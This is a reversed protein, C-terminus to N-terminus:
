NEEQDELPDEPGSFIKRTQDYADGVRDLFGRAELEADVAKEMASRSEEDGGVGSTLILMDLFARRDEPSYSTKGALRRIVRESYEPDAMLRGIIVEAEETPELTPLVTGKIIARGRAAVRNLVGLTLTILKDASTGADRIFSKTDAVKEPKAKDLSRSMRKSEALLGTIFDFTKPTDKFLERGVAYINSKGEEAASIAEIDAAKEGGPITKGTQMKNQLHKLYASQMGKQVDEPAEDFITGIRSVDGSDIFKEFNKYQEPLEDGYTDFFEKYKQKFIQTEAKDRQKELEKITKQFETIDDKSTKLRDILKNIRGAQEPNIRQMSAGFRELPGTFTSLDMEQLSQGANIRSQLQAAVEGFIMNTQLEPKVGAEPRRLLQDLHGAYAPSQVIERIIKDTEEEFNVVGIDPARGITGRYSKAFSELKGDKWVPAWDERYYRVFEKGEPINAAAENISSRLDILDSPDGSRSSVMRSIRRSLEPVLNEYLDRFDGSMDEPDVGASKLLNTPLSTLTEEHGSLDVDYGRPIQKVRENLDAKMQEYAKTIAQRTDDVSQNAAARVDISTKENLRELLPAFEPDEEFITTLNRGREELAEEAQRIPQEFGTEFEERAMRQVGEGAETVAEQGGLAEQTQEFATRTERSPTSVALPLDQTHEGGKALEGARISRSQQQVGLDDTGEEIASMTDRIIRLTDGDPTEFVAESNDRIMNAIESLYQQRESGVANRARGLGSVIQMALSDELGRQGGAVVQTIPKIITNWAAVSGRIGLDAVREAPYAIAIADVLDNTMEEMRGQYTEPNADPFIEGFIPLLADEGMLVRDEGPRKSAAYGAAGGITGAAKQLLPRLTKTALSAAQAGKFAPVATAGLEVAARSAVPKYEPPQLSEFVDEGTIAESLMKTAQRFPQLEGLRRAGEYVGGAVDMAVAPWNRRDFISADGRPKEMAEEPTIGPAPPTYGREEGTPIFGQPNEEYLRNFEEPSGTKLMELTQADMPTESLPTIEGHVSPDYMEFQETASLPTIEGHKKPDYLEPM